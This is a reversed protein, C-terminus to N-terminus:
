CRGGSCASRTRSSGAAERSGVVVLFVGDRALVRPFSSILLAYLAPTVRSGPVGAAAPGQPAAPSSGGWSVGYRRRRGADEQEGTGPALRAGCQSCSGPSGDGSM